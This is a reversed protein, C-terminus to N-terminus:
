TGSDPAPGNTKASSALQFRHAGKVLLDLADATVRAPAERGRGRGVLDVRQAVLNEPPGPAQGGQQALESRDRRLLPRREAPQRVLDAVLDLRGMAELEELDLSQHDVASRAEGVQLAHELLHGAREVTSLCAGAEAGAVVREGLRADREVDAAEDAAPLAARRALSGAPHRDEAGPHHM